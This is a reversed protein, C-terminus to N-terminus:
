YSGTVFGKKERMEYATKQKFFGMEIMDKM